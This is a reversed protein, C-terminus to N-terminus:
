AVFDPQHEPASLAFAPLSLCHAEIRALNDWLIEVGFRRANAMQPILCIDALSPADGFCFLRGDDPLMAACADLGVRNTDAAWVLSQSGEPCIRDIRNLVGLDQIPHIDCAISLAFARIRAHEAATTGFLSPTGRTEDLYEIIALSQTLVMGDIELAPVLGQPNLKLYASSHQAGKRLMYSQQTYNVGKLALAIRVRWSASSRSFGHLIPTGDGKM